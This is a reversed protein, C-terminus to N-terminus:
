ISLTSRDINKTTGNYQGWMDTALLNLHEYKIPLLLKEPGGFVGSSCQYANNFMTSNMHIDTYKYLFVDSHCWELAAM